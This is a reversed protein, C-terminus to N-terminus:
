VPFRRVARAWAKASKVYGDQYGNGFHQGWAGSESYQKGLWYWGSPDFRDRLNAALLLGEIPSAMRAGNGLGRAWAVSDAWDLKGPPLEDLLVIHGDPEDDEARAIGAYAGAVDPWAQAIAPPMAFGLRSPTSDGVSTLVDSVIGGPDVASAGYLNITLRNIHM